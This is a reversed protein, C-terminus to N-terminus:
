RRLAHSDFYPMAIAGGALYAGGSLQAPYQAIWYGLPAIATEGGVYQANPFTLTGLSNTLTVQNNSDDFTLNLGNNPTVRWIRRGSAYVGSALFGQEWAAFGPTPEATEDFLVFSDREAILEMFKTHDAVTGAPQYFDAQEVVMNAHLVCEAWLGLTGLNHPTTAFSETAVWTHLQTGRSASWHDRLQMVQQTLATWEDKLADHLLVGSGTTTFDLPNAGSNANNYNSHITATTATLMRVYYHKDQWQLSGQTRTTGTLGTPLTTASFKVRQGTALAPAAGFTLVNTGADITVSWKTTIYQNNLTPWNWRYGNHAGYVSTSVAGLVNAGTGYPAQFAAASPLVSQTGGSHMGIEYEVVALTPHGFEDRAIQAIAQFYESYYKTLWADYLFAREDSSYTWTAYTDWVTQTLAPKIRNDRFDAWYSDAFVDTFTEAPTGYGGQLMWFLKMREADMIVGDLLQAANGIGYRAEGKAKLDRWFQRWKSNANTIQSKVSEMSLGRRTTSTLENDFLAYKWVGGLFVPIAWLPNYDAMKLWRRGQPEAALLTDVANISYTDGNVGGQGYFALCPWIIQNYQDITPAGNMVATKVSADWMLVKHHTVTGVDAGPPMDAILAAARSDSSATVHDLFLAKDADYQTNLLARIEHARKNNKLVGGAYRYPSTSYYSGAGNNWDLYSLGSEASHKDSITPAPDDIYGYAVLAACLESTTLRSFVREFLGNPIAGNYLM